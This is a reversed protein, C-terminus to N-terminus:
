ACVVEGVGAAGWEETLSETEAIGAMDGAISVPTLSSLISGRHPRRAVLLRKRSACTVHSPCLARSIVVDTLFRPGPFTVTTTNVVVAGVLVSEGCLQRVGSVKHDSSGADV